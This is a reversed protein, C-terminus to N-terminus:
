NEYDVEKDMFKTTIYIPYTGIIGIITKLMYRFVICLAIEIVSWEYSYALLIYIINEVFETIIISFINSIVIKNRVRKLLYYIKSNMWVAVVISIILAIYEKIHTKFLNSYAINSNLVYQSNTMISSLYFFAVSIIFSILVIILYKKIAEKGKNQTLINGGIILSTITVFGLPVNINMIAITKTTMIVSGITAIIAYIYIGETNLIKKLIILSGYCIIIEIIILLVNNM